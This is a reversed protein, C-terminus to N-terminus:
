INMNATIAQNAFHYIVLDTELLSAAQPIDRLLQALQAIAHHQKPKAIADPDIGLFEACPLTFTEPHARLGTVAFRSIIDLGTAVSGRTPEDDPLVTTLQRTLPAEIIRSTALDM